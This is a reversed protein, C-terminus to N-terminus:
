LNLAELQQLMDAVRTRVLDREERLGSIEAAAGEADAMRARMTEIERTLRVNEESLRSQESRMRDITTVLLRLKEDLRDIPELELGRATKAM